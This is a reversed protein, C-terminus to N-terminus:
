QKQEENWCDNCLEDGDGGLCYGVKIKCKECIFIGGCGECGIDHVSDAPPNYDIEICGTYM